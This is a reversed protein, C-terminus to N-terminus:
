AFRLEGARLNAAQVDQDPERTGGGARPQTPVLQRGVQGGLAFGVAELRHRLAPTRRQYTPAVAPLRERFTQRPCTPNGCHLRRAHLHLSVPVNGLPLDALVRTFRSHARHSRRLCAPCRASRRTSSVEVIVQQEAWTVLNLRLAAWHPYAT